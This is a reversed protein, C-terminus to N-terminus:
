LILDCRDVGYVGERVGIGRGVVDNLVEMVRDRFDRRGM